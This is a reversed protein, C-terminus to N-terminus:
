HAGHVLPAQLGNLTHSQQQEAEDRLREFKALAAKAETNQGLARYTIMLEYYATASRPAYRAAAQFETAADLLKKEALLVQGLGLRADEFSPQVQIAKSFYHAADELRHARLYVDGIETNTPVDRPNLALEKQFEALAQGDGGPSSGTELALRGLEYHIGPLDPKLRSVIRYEKAAEALNGKAEAAEALVQHTRYADPVKAYMREVVSKWLASYVRAATYLVDPDDPALARLKELADLGHNQRSLAFDLDVLREGAAIRVPLDDEPDDLGQELLPVAKQYQRLGIDVFALVVGVDPLRPNLQMALQLSGEAQRLEGLKQYVTGLRAVVQANGPDLKVAARYEEAALRWNHTSYAQAANSLHAQFESRGSQAQPPVPRALSLATFFGLCLLHACHKVM